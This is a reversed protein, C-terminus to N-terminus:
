IMRDKEGRIANVRAVESVAELAHNPLKGWHNRYIDVILAAGDPKDAMHCLRSNESIIALRFADM